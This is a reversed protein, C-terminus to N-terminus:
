SATVTFDQVTYNVISTHTLSGSTGTVTVTYTGSSGTCSLTSTGTNGLTVSTPSLTCTLGISPSVSATLTVTGTFGLLNTVFVTSTGASGANVVVSAPNDAIMFDQVTVVINTSHSLALGTGTLTVTYSGAAGSC